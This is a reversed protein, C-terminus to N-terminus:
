AQHTEGQVKNEEEKHINQKWCTRGFYEGPKTVFQNEWSKRIIWMRMQQLGIISICFYKTKFEAVFTGTRKFCSNLM